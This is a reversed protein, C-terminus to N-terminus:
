RRLFTLSSFFIMVCVYLGIPFAIYSQFYDVSKSYFNIPDPVFTEKTLSLWIALVAAGGFFTLLWLRLLYIKIYTQTSVPFTLIATPKRRLFGLLSFLLILLLLRYAPWANYVGETDLGSNVYVFFVLYSVPLHWLFYPTIKKWNLKSLEELEELSYEKNM